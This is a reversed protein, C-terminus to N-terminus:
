VNAGKLYMDRFRTKAKARNQRLLRRDMGVWDALLDENENGFTMPAPAVGYTGRLIDASKKGMKDLAAHVNRRTERQRATEVDQPEILDEPLGITSLLRDAVTTEDEDGTTARADLSDLGQWSLRAAYAMEETMRRKGMYEADAAIHEAEYPDGHAMTLAKEFEKAIAESVGHRTQARRENSMVGNLTRDIFTFFQAVSEGEFRAIAQWLELRGTQALDDMLAYDTCGGTTAYRRALQTVREDTERVVHSVAEADNSKAAAIQAM